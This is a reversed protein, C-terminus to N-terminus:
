CTLDQRTRQRRDDPGRVRCLAARHLAGVRAQSAAGRRGFLSAVRPINDLVGAELGGKYGHMGERIWGSYWSCWTARNPHRLHAGNAEAACPKGQDYLWAAKRTMLRALEVEIKAKAADKFRADRTEVLVIVVPHDGTLAGRNALDVFGAYLAERTIRGRRHKEGSSDEGPVLGLYAM